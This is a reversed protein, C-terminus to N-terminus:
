TYMMEAMLSMKRPIYVLNDFYGALEDVTTDDMRAQQSCTMDAASARVDLAPTRVATRTELTPAPELNTNPLRELATAATKPDLPVEASSTSTSRSRYKRLPGSLHNGHHHHHYHHHRQLGPALRRNESVMNVKLKKFATQLDEEVPVQQPPQQQHNKDMERVHRLKLAAAETNQPRKIDEGLARSFCWAVANAAFVGNFHASISIEIMM